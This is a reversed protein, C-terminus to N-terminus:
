ADRGEVRRRAAEARARLKPLRQEGIEAVVRDRVKPDVFDYATPRGPVVALVGADVAERLDVVMDEETVRALHRLVAYRAGGPLLAVYDLLRRTAGSLAALRDGYEQSAETM